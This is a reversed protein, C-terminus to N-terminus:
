RAAPLRIRVLILALDSTGFSCTVSRLDTAARQHLTAALERGYDILRRVLSLLRGARSPNPTPPEAPAAAASM